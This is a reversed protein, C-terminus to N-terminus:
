RRQSPRETVSKDLSETGAPRELWTNIEYIDEPALTGVLRKLRILDQVYDVISNDYDRIASFYTEQARLVDVANRTGVEFGVEAADLASKTSIVARGRARNRAVDSMVGIHLARTQQTVNRVTGAYSAKQSDLRAAAQRSNASLSGGAYLPMSLELFVVSQKQNNPFDTERDSILDTQTVDTSADRYSAALNLKPLHESRAAAAGKQAANRGYEAVKIDLNNLRAFDVWAEGDVPDTATVPFDPKLMWLHGHSRGTLVSLLELRIGLQGEDGVRQSVALDYGAHAEHLDTVAVLGVDFRQQVQELQAKLATELARSARLNAMSRLVEFYAIVVRQMLDQQAVSFAAEAERSLEVGRKFDFWAPLDFLPQSLSVNWVNTDAQTDTRNPFLIAGAPFAGRNESETNQYAYGVSFKPLLGSRAILREEAGVRYIARAEVITQDNFVALEYIGALTSRDILQNEFEDEVVAFARSGIMIQCCLLVLATNIEVSRKM